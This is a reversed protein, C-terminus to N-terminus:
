FNGPGFDPAKTFLVAKIKQRLPQPLATLPLQLEAQGQPAAGSSDQGDPHALRVGFYREFLERPGAISFSGAFQTGVSFGASRFANKLDADQSAADVLVVQASLMPSSMPVAADHETRIPEAIPIGDIL